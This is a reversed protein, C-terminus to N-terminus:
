GSTEAQTLGLTKLIREFLLAVSPRDSESVGFVRRGGADVKALTPKRAALPLKDLKTAAVLTPPAARGKKGSEEVM